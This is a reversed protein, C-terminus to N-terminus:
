HPDGAKTVKDGEVVKGDFTPQFGTKHHGPPPKYSTLDLKGTQPDLKGLFMHFMGWPVRSRRIVLYYEEGPPAAKLWRPLAYFLCNSKGIRM